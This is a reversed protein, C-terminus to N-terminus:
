NSILQTQLALSWCLISWIHFWPSCHRIRSIRRSAGTGCSMKRFYFFFCLCFTVSFFLLLCNCHLFDFFCSIVWVPGAIFLSDCCLAFLAVERIYGGLTPLMISRYSQCRVELALEHYVVLVVSFGRMLASVSVFWAARCVYCVCAVCSGNQLGCAFVTFVKVKKHRLYAVPAKIVSFQKLNESLLVRNVRLTALCAVSLSIM